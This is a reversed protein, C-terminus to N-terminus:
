SKLREREQAVYGDSTREVKAWPNAEVNWAALAFAQSLPLDDLVYDLAMHFDRTM